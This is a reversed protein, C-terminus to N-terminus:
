ENNKIVPLTFTFRSGKGTMSEVWMSGGHAEVIKRSLGLGIGYGPYAEETHLRQFLRFIIEHHEADIGIGNDKVCLEWDKNKRKASIRIRPSESGRFKIANDLLYAFLRTLRGRHGMAQPLDEYAIVAGSAQIEAGLTTIATAVADNLDVPADKTVFTDLRVYDLLGQMLTKLREAEHELTQATERGAPDANLGPHKNLDNCCSQIVRLPAQLDHSILYGIFELEDRLKEPDPSIANEQPALESAIATQM